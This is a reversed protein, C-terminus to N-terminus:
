NKFFFLQKTIKAAGMPVETHPLLVVDECDWLKKLLNLKMILWMECNHSANATRLM